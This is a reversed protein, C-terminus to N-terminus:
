RKRPLVGAARFPLRAIIHCPLSGGRKIQCAMCATCCSWSRLCFKLSLGFHVFHGIMEGVDRCAQQSGAPPEPEFSRAGGTSRVPPYAYIEALKCAMCLCSWDIFFSAGPSMM